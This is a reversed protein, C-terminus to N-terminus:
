ASLYLQRFQWDGRQRLGAVVAEPDDIGLSPWTAHGLSEVLDNPPDALFEVVAATPQAPLVTSIFAGERVRWQTVGVVKAAGVFVEGPGQGAFCVIEHGSPANLRGDYVVYDHPALDSLTAQWWRGVQQASEHVDTLYREDSAPIWMDIWLDDPQLLVVGGGGKRRRVPMRRGAENLITADQSSGLVLTPTALHISFLTPRDLSRLVSYDYLDELEDV